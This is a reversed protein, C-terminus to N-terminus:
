LSNNGKVKEDEYKMCEADFSLVVRVYFFFSKQTFFFFTTKLVENHLGGEYQIWEEKKMEM